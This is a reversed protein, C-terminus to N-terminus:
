ETIQAKLDVESLVFTTGDALKIKKFERGSLVKDTIELIPVGGLSGLKEKEISGLKPEKPLSVKKSTKKVTAIKKKAM